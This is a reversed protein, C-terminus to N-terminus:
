KTFQFTSLVQKFITPMEKDGITPDVYYTGLSYIYQGKEVVYNRDSTGCCGISSFYGNEDGLVIAKGVEYNELETNPRHFTSYLWDKLTTNTSNKYVRLFFNNPQPKLKPDTPINPDTFSIKYVLDKGSLGMYSESTEEKQIWDSPYKISFNYTDNTYTKWDATVAIDTNDDATLVDTADDAIAPTSDNNIADLTAKDPQVTHNKSDYYAWAFFGIGALIVIILTIWLWM